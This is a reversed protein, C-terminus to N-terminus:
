KRGSPSGAGQGGVFSKTSVPTLTLKERQINVPEETWDNQPNHVSAHLPVRALSFVVWAGTTACCRAHFLRFALPQETQLFSPLGPLRSALVVPVPQCVAVHQVGPRYRGSSCCDGHHAAPTSPTFDAILESGSHPGLRANKDRPFLAVFGQLVDDSAGPSYSSSAALNREPHLGLLGGGGGHGHPVPIDVNQEVLGHLSSYSVIAPVEVPQESRHPSSSIKPVEFVLEPVHLDLHRFAEVAPEWGAASSCRLDARLTM